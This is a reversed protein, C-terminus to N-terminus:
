PGAPVDTHGETAGSPVLARGAGALTGHATVSRLGGSCTGPLWPLRWHAPSPSCGTRPPLAESKSQESCVRDTVNCEHPMLPCPFPQNYGLSVLGPARAM